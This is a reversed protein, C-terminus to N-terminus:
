DHHENALEEARLREQEAETPAEAEVREAALLGPEGTLSAQTGQDPHGENVRNATAADAARRGQEEIVPKFGEQVQDAPPIRHDMQANMPGTGTEHRHQVDGVGQDQETVPGPEGARTNRWRAPWPPQAFRARGATQTESDAYGDLWLEKREDDLDDPASRDHGAKQASVGALYAEEDPDKPGQEGKARPHWAEIREGLTDSYQEMHWAQHHLREKEEDDLSEFKDSGIFAGLKERKADLEEKEDVVRSQHPELARM